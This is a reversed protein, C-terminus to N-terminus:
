STGGKGGKVRDPFLNSAFIRLISGFIDMREESGRVRYACNLSIPVPYVIFLAQIFCVKNM